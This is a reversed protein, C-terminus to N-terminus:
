KEALSPVFAAHIGFQSQHSSFNSIDSFQRVATHILTLIGPVRDSMFCGLSECPGYCVTETIQRTSIAITLSM